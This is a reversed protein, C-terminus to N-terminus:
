GGVERPHHNRSPDIGRRADPGPRGLGQRQQGEKSDNVGQKQPHEHQAHKNQLDNPHQGKKPPENQHGYQTDQRSQSIVTDSESIETLKHSRSFEEMELAEAIRTLDNASLRGITDFLHDDFDGAKFHDMFDRFDREDRLM